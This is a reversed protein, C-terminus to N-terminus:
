LTNRTWTGIEAAPTVITVDNGELRLAEAITSGMYYHDDDYIVIKGSVKKGELIDSASLIWDQDCGPIPSTNARGLGDKRWSAGTAIAVHPLGLEMIDDASLVSDRYIEVNARQQLQYVRYDSVRGWAALGPLQRERLVRGGLETHAEALSVDVNRQALTLAAELGAPGSGVVLASQEGEVPSIKEPHWGRSWEVGITPNQTCRIPAALVVNTTCINCGICERIDEVRGQEIKTPLFPDAISPRAAGIFDLAGKRVLAAMRDPSTYRGVGVVPKTTISKVFSTFEEQYGEEFFRSPGSDNSWDSLNVDWLDPEEALAELIDRGEADASIGDPGRKEEVAFRVAVAAKGEAVEKADEIIERLLRLRNTFSGGYEDTRRNYRSLLFQMLLSLDHACYVYVIDVGATIARCIADKHWQRLAKIDAKDMARTAYPGHGSYPLVSPGLPYERTLRNAASKGAHSLELGFLSGYKHVGDALRAIFPIDEDSYLRLYGTPAHDASPHIMCEEGCVVGWGGEAKVERYRISHNPYSYGMGTAHPAQYFRNPACVPGIDVPEFLITYPNYTKM